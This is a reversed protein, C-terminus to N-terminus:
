LGKKPLLNTDFNVLLLESNQLLSWCRVDFLKAAEFFPLLSILPFPM